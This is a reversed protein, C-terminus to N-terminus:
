LLSTKMQGSSGMCWRDALAIPVLQAGTGSGPVRAGFIPVACRALKVWYMCLQLMPQYNDCHNVSELRKELSWQPHECSRLM